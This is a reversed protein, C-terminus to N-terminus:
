DLSAAFEPAAAAACAMVTCAAEDREYQSTNDPALQQWAESMQRMLIDVPRAQAGEETRYRDRRSESDASEPCALSFLFDTETAAEPFRKALDRWAEPAASKQWHRCAEWAWAHPPCEPTDDLQLWQSYFGALSDGLRSEQRILTTKVADGNAIRARSFEGALNGRRLIEDLSNAPVKRVGEYHGREEAVSLPDIDPLTSRDTPLGHRLIDLADRTEINDHNQALLHKPLEEADDLKGRLRFLRVMVVHAHDNDPDQRLARRLYHEAEQWHAEGRWILLRALEVYAPVDQPFMRLMERLIAEEADRQGQVQFWQAWLMWCYPNAPEWTLAREIMLGFRSMGSADLTHHELLKSGLNSLTRVFFYSDGTALAYKHNQELIELLRQVLGHPEQRPNLIDNLLSKRAQESAPMKSVSGRRASVGHRSGERLNDLLEKAIQTQMRVPFDRLAEGLVPNWHRPNRPFLGRVAAFQQDFFRRADNVEHFATSAHRLLAQLMLVQNKRANGGNPLLRLGALAVTLYEARGDAAFRLWIPMYGTDPQDRTLFRLCELAPDREPALRLPMLWSLWDELNERIAERTQPLDLLQLAILADGVRKGYVSFRLREVQSAYNERMELLWALLADDLQAREEALTPPFWLRLTEPVDLRMSSGVGARGTFLDRVAMQPDQRFAKFWQDSM